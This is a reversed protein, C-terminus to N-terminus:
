RFVRVLALMGNNVILWLVAPLSAAPSLVSVLALALTNNKFGSLLFFSVARERSHARGVFYGFGYAFANAALVALALQWIDGATNLHTLGQATLGWVLLFSLATSAAVERGALAKAHRGLLFAAALPVAVAFALLKAMAPVDIQIQAGALLYVSLPALLPAALTVALVSALVVGTEGRLVRALYVASVGTPVSAAVLLGLTFDSSLGFALALAATALPVIAFSSVLAFIPGKREPIKIEMGLLTFFMMGMLLPLAYESLAAGQPVFAGFALAVSIVLLAHEQLAEHVAM